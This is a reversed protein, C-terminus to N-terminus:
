LQEPLSKTKYCPQNSQSHSHYEECFEKDSMQLPSKPKRDPQSFYVLALDRVRKCVPSSYSSRTFDEEDEVTVAGADHHLILACKLNVVRGTWLCYFFNPRQLRELDLSGVPNGKQLWSMWADVLADHYDVDQIYKSMGLACVLARDNVSGNTRFARLDRHTLWSAWLKINDDTALGPVSYACFKFRRNDPEVIVILDKIKEPAFALFNHLPVQAIFREFHQFAVIGLSQYVDAYKSSKWM